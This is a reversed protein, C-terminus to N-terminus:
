LYSLINLYRMSKEVKSLTKMTVTNKLKEYVSLAGLARGYTILTFYNSWSIWHNRYFHFLKKSSRAAEKIHQANRFMKCLYTVNTFYLIMHGDYM